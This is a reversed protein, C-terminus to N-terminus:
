ERGMFLKAVERREGIYTISVNTNERLIVACTVGSEDIM